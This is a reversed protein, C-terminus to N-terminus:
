DLIRDIDKYNKVKKIEDVARAAEHIRKMAAAPSIKRKGELIQECTVKPKNMHPQWIFGCIICKFCPNGKFVDDYWIHEDVKDCGVAKCVDRIYAISKGSNVFAVHAWGAHEYVRHEEKDDAFM